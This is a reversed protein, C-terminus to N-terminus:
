CCLKDIPRSTSCDDSLHSYCAVEQQTETKL